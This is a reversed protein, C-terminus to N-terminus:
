RYVRKRLKRLYAFLNMESTIAFVYYACLLITQLSYSLFRARLEAKFNLCSRYKLVCNELIAYM